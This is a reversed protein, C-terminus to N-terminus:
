GASGVSRVGTHLGVTRDLLELAFARESARRQRAGIGEFAASTREPASRRNLHRRPRPPRPRARPDRARRRHRRGRAAGRRPVDAVAVWRGLGGTADVAAMLGDLRAACRSSTPPERRSLPALLGLLERTAAVDATVSALDTGSGYDDEGTLPDGTRGPAAEHSRLTVGSVALRRRCSLQRPGAELRRLTRDAGRTTRRRVSLDDRDFLDREVQPDPSAQIPPGTAGPGRHDRRDPARTRRLRRLGWRGPRHLWTLHATLWAPRAAGARDAALDARADRGAGAARSSRRVYRRYARMPGVLQDPRCRCGDPRHRRRPHAPSTTPTPSM